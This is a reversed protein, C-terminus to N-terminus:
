CQNLEIAEAYHIVCYIVTLIYANRWKTQPISGTIDTAVSKFSTNIIPIERLHVPPTYHKAMVQQFHPCSDIYRKIDETMGPWYYLHKIRAITNGSGSHDALIAAHGLDVQAHYPTPPVLQSHTMRAVTNDTCYMVKSSTHHM